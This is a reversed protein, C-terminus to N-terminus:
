LHCAAIAREANTKSIKPGLIIGEYHSSALEMIRMEPTLNRTFKPLFARTEEKYKWDTSKILGIEKEQKKAADGGILLPVDYHYEADSYPFKPILRHFANEKPLTERYKVDILKINATKYDGIETVGKMKKSPRSGNLTPAFIKIKITQDIASYINVFGTDAAAYHGWVTPNLGTKSFSAIYKPDASSFIDDNLSINARRCCEKLIAFNKNLESNM